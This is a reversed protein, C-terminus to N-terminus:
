QKFLPTFIWQEHRDIGYYYLVSNNKDRSSVGVFPGTSDAASDEGGPATQPSGTNLVSTMTPAAFVQLDAIQTDKPTPAVNGAYLMVSRQFELLGQSRTRILRWEDATSLPDRAASARLIQRKKSGGAVPIGERLQDISSPLAQDFRLGQALRYKYYDRIADAVQEGRFITEKERERQVQQRISPAAAMAFLALLTMVALLAVLTYGAEGAHFSGRDQGFTAPADTLRWGYIKHHPGTSHSM